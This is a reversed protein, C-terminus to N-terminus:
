APDIWMRFLYPKAGENPINAGNYNQEKQPYPYKRPIAKGDTPAILPFGTRRWDIFVEPNLWLSAWKQTMIANLSINSVTYTTPFTASAGTEVMSAAIGANLAKAAGSLDGLKFKSEALIFYLETKPMLKIEAGSGMLYSGFGNIVSFSTDKKNKSIVTDSIDMYIKLRKDQYALLTDRLVFNPIITGRQDNFQYWPAQSTASTGAFVFKFDSYSGDSLGASDLAASINSLSSPSVKSTHLYYRAKLAYATKKWKEINGSFIIDDKKPSIVSTQSNLDVIALDLISQIQLYVSEQSDFKPQASGKEGNLAETLPIDGFHSTLNGLSHAMLVRAVGSYHPSTTSSKTIIEKCSALSRYMNDWPDDTDSRLFGYGNIVLFQADYGEIQQAFMCSYRSFSGGTTYGALVEVPTLLSNLPAEIPNNLDTDIDKNFTCSEIMISLITLIAGINKYFKIKM